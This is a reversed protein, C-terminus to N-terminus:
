YTIGHQTTFEPVTVLLGVPILQPESQESDYIFLVWTISVATGVVPDKKAPQLPAHEPMPVQTTLIVEAFDTM